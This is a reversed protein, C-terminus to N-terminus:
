CVSVGVDRFKDRGVVAGDMEQLSGEVCHFEFHLSPVNVASELSEAGTKRWLAVTKTCKAFSRLREVGDLEFHLSPISHHPLGM